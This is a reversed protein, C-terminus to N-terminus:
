KMEALLFATTGDTYKVGMTGDKKGFIFYGEVGSTKSILEYAADVGMVMCATAYADATMCDEAFISASLIDTMKPLGTKPDITHGYKQGNVEYYNRYNGSSALAMDSLKVQAKLDTLAADTQPTAIGIIWPQNRPSEGKTRVEGGIEVYYNNLNKRDFLECIADVGYGKAIASFDLSVGAATKALFRTSEDLSVKDMGVYQRLSDIKQQDRKTVERKERAFGWYSVLPLVTPDFSGKTQDYIMRARYYNMLFHRNPMDAGVFKGALAIGKESQNFKTIFSTDLYTNVEANIERLLQDVEKKLSEPDQTTVTLNYTTGMTAGNIKVFGAPKTSPANANPRCALCLTLTIFITFFVRM